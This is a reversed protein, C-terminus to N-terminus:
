LLNGPTAAGADPRMPLPMLRWVRAWLDDWVPRMWLRALVINIAMAVLVIVILQALDGHGASDMARALAWATGVSLTGCVIPPVLVEAVARWGAGYPRLAMKM